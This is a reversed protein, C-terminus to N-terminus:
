SFDDEENYIRLTLTGTVYTINYYDTVDQNDSNYIKVGFDEPNITIEAVTDGMSYSSSDSMCYDKSSLSYHVTDGSALSNISFNTNNSYNTSNSYITKKESANSVDRTYSKATITINRKTITIKCLDKVTPDLKLTEKKTSYTTENDLTLIVDEYETSNKAFDFELSTASPGIVPTVEKDGDLYHLSINQEIRLTKTKGDYTYYNNFGKTVSVSYMPVVKYTPLVYTVNYYDSLKITQGNDTVDFSLDSEKLTHEGLTFYKSGTLGGPVTALLGSTKEGEVKVQFNGADISTTGDAIYTKGNQDEPLTVTITVDSKEVTVEGVYTGDATQTTGDAYTIEIDPKSVNESSGESVFYSLDKLYFPYTGPLSPKNGNVYDLSYVLKDQIDSDEATVTVNDKSLSFGNNAGSIPDPNHYTVNVKLKKITLTGDVIGQKPNEATLSDVFNYYATRDVGNRTIHVDFYDKLSYTGTTTPTLLANGAADKKAVVELSDGSVLNEITVHKKMEEISVSKQNAYHTFSVFTVRAKQQGVKLSAKKKIILDITNDEDSASSSYKYSGLTAESITYEYALPGGSRTTKITPTAGKPYDSEESVLRFTPRFNEFNEYDVNEEKGEYTLKVKKITLTGFDPNDISYASTVDDGTSDIIKIEFYDGLNYPTKSVATPLTTGQKQVVKLTDGPQLGSFSNGAKALVEDGTVSKKDYYHSMPEVKFNKIIYNPNKEITYTTGQKLILSAMQSRTIRSNGKGLYIKSIDIAYTGPLKADKLEGSGYLTYDTPYDSDEEGISLSISETSTGDYTRTLKDSTTLVLTAKKVTLSGTISTFEYCDTVDEQGHYIRLNDKSLTSLDFTTSTATTDKLVDNGSTDMGDLLNFNLEDGDALTGSSLSIKTQDSSTPNLSLKSFNYNNGDYYKTLSGFDVAIKRKEVTVSLTSYKIDYNASVDNSNADKVTVEYFLENEKNPNSYTTKSPKIIKALTTKVSVQHGSVLGTGSDTGDSNTTASDHDISFEVEKGDYTKTYSSPTGDAKLTISLPRKKITLTGIYQSTDIDYYKTVDDGNSDVIQYPISISYGNENADTFSQDTPDSTVFKDGEYLDGKSINLNDKSITHSKGDYVLTKSETHLSIKRKEVKAEPNTITSPRVDYCNSADTGDEHTIQYNYSLDMSDKKAYFATLSFVDKGALTTGDEFSCAELSAHDNESLVPRYEITGSFTTKVHLERKKITLTGPIITIQYNSKTSEKTTSNVIDVDFTLDQTGPNKSLKDKYPYSFLVEEGNAILDSNYSIEADLTEGKSNYLNTTSDYDRTYSVGQFTIAKKKITFTSPVLSIDYYATVNVNDANFIFIQNATINNTQTGATTLSPAYDESLSIKDGDLLSGTTIKYDKTTIAKGDYDKEVSAFTLGIKRKQITLTAEKEPYTFHYCATRDEGKENQIVISGQQITSSLPNTGYNSYNVKYDILKDEALLGDVTITPKDGYNITQDSYSLTAERAKIHFPQEKGYYNGGYNKPSYARMVYNGPLYPVKESWEQSSEQRFQYRASSLFSSSSYTFPEGYIYEQGIPADDKVMGKTSVLTMTIGLAVLLFALIWFRIHYLISVKEARKSVKKQYEEYLM